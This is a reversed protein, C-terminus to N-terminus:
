PAITNQDQLRPLIPLINEGMVRSALLSRHHTFFHRPFRPESGQEGFRLDVIRGADVLDASRSAM